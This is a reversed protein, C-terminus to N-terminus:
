DVAQNLRGTGTLSRTLSRMMGLFTLFWATLAAYIFYRPIEMLFPLHTIKALHLTCTTYMGLPFVMGWYLPTYTFEVKGIVHRWFGLILLLPIWWTATSWFFVTAGMLFHYVQQLFRSGPSYAVLTAGALTSIADAGSSIWYPPTLDRPDLHLYLLRYFILTIILFYFFGGVLFLCFSIFLFLEQHNPFQPSILCTLISLSQTGVTSVLWSGNLGEELSPKAGKVIFATFIGYIFLLWLGAGLCLLCSAIGLAKYLILMQSGLICTGAIMTFFGVGRSHDQFDALFERHYFLLRIAFLLWLILYFCVNLWFLLVALLGFGLLYCALSVIGTSMVLAFYAPHMGAILCGAAGMFERMGM